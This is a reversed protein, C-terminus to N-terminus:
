TALGFLVALVSVAYPGPVAISWSSGFIFRMSLICVLSVASHIALIGAYDGFKRLHWHEDISLGLVWVFLFAISGLILVVGLGKLALSKM